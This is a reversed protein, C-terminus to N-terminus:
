VNIFFASQYLKQAGKIETLIYLCFDILNNCLIVLQDIGKRFVSIAKYSTGGVSKQIRIKKYEKLGEHISLVYAFVVIALLLNQRAQGKLNIFELHFGNSKLQKFCHEIKWRIPYMAAIVPAAKDISTILFIIPEKATAKPNKIVVFYLLVGKLYFSKRVSKNPKKSRQVKAIMEEVTKGKGGNVADRYANTKSRVVFDFGNNKLFKFWDEGIYERDALLIKKTLNFSRMARRMLSKRERTSSIGHKNLNIWYIPIAVDKYVLCLTLYHQWDKGRKWSTGDLTLYASKLRLLKFVYCLLDIWLRSFAHNDFIRILRKYNSHPQTKKNGTITGVTGKLKNLCVTEKLLFSLALILVNKLGSKSLEPFNENLKNLLPELM